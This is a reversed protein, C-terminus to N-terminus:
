CGKSYYRKIMDPDFQRLMKMSLKEMTWQGNDIKHGNDNIVAITGRWWKCCRVFQEASQIRSLRIEITMYPDTRYNICCGHGGINDTAFTRFDSGFFEIRDESTMNHIKEFLPTFISRGCWRRRAYNCSVHMHAGCRIDRFCKMEDETCNGLFKSLGQLSRFRVHGEASVTCDKEIHNTRKTKSCGLFLLRVYVSMFAYDFNANYDIEYLTVNDVRIIDGNEDRKPVIGFAKKVAHEGTGYKQSVIEFEVSVHPKRKNTTNDTGDFNVNIYDANSHYTLPLFCKLGIYRAHKEGAFGTMGEIKVYQKHNVVGGCSSCKEVHRGVGNFAEESSVISVRILHRASFRALAISINVNNNTTTRTM